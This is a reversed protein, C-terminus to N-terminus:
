LHTWEYACIGTRLPANYLQDNPLILDSVPANKETEM